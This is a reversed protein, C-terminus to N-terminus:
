QDASPALTLRTLVLRSRREGARRYDASLLLGPVESHFTMTLHRDPKEADWIAVRIGPFRGAPLAVEGREVVRYQLTEEDGKHDLYRLTCPAVQDGRCRADVAQRSLAFLAAQRDPLATMEDAALTYRKGIGLMRYGSTYSQAEVHQESVRFRSRENGEAIGIDARMESQWLEGRRSLRHDIQADPWGAIALQYSAQFPVPSAHAVAELALGTLGLMGTLIMFLRDPWRRRCQM